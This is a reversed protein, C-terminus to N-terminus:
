RKEGLGVYIFIDEPWKIFEEQKKVGTQDRGINLFYRPRWSIGTEIEYVLIQFYCPIVDHARQTFM